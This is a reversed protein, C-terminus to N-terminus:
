YNANEISRMIELAESESLKLPVSDGPTLLQEGWYGPMGSCGSLGFIVFLTGLIRM